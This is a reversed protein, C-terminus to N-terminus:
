SFNQHYNFNIITTKFYKHDKLLFFNTKKNYGRCKVFRFINLHYNILYIICSYVEDCRSSSERPLNAWKTWPSSSQDCPQAGHREACGSCTDHGNVDFFIPQSKTLCFVGRLRTMLAEKVEEIPDQSQTRFSLSAAIPPRQLLMHCTVQEFGPLSEICVWDPVAVDTPRVGDNFALLGVFTRTDGNKDKLRLVLSSRQVGYINMATEVKVKLQMPLIIKNNDKERDFWSTSNFEGYSSLRRINLTSKVLFSHQVM